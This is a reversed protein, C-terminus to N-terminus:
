SEVVEEQELQGLWLAMSTQPLSLKAQLIHHGIKGQDVKLDKHPLNWLGIKILVTGKPISRQNVCM